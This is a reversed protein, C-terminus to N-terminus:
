HGCGQYEYRVRRFERSLMYSINYTEGYSYADSGLVKLM